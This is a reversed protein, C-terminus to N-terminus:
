IEVCKEFQILQAKQNWASIAMPTSLNNKWHLFKDTSSKPYFKNIDVM